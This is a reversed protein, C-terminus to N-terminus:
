GELGESGMSMVVEVRSHKKGKRRGGRAEAFLMRDIFIIAKWGRQFGAQDGSEKSALTQRLIAGKLKAVAHTAGQPVVGLTPVWNQLTGYQLRDFWAMNAVQEPGGRAM